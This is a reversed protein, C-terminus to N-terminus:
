CAVVIPRNGAAEALRARGLYEDPSGTPRKPERDDSRALTRQNVHALERNLARWADAVSRGLSGAAPHDVEGLM